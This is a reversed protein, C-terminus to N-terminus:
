LAWSLNEEKEKKPVLNGGGGGKLNTKADQGGLLEGPESAPSAANQSESGKMPELVVAMMFM